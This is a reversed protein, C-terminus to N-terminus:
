KEGLFDPDYFAADEGGYNLCARRVSCAKCMASPKAPFRGAGVDLYFKQILEDLYETTYAGLGQFGDRLQGSRAFWFAGFRPRVGTKQRFGEAYLGAQLLDPAFFPNGTKIDLVTLEGGPMVYVRDIVMKVRHGGIVPECKLEVALEDGALIALQWSVYQRTWDMWRQVFVPGNQFWWDVGQGRSVDWNHIDPDSLYATRIEEIFASTFLEVPDGGNSRDFQETAAHVASGGVRAWSQRQPVKVIRELQWAKPCKAYSSLSSFSVHAPLSIM